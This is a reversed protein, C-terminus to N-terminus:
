LLQVGFEKSFETTAGQRKIRFVVAGTPTAAAAPTVAFQVLKPVTNPIPTATNVLQLAWGILTAGPKPQITLDYNGPVGLSTINFMVIMQKGVKLKIVGGELRGNAQNTDVGGTAVDIVVAGTQQVQINPDAQPVVAGVTLSRSESNTVGGSTATVVLTFSQSAFTAPIQPIRVVINRTENKGLEIRKNSIVSGSEDLFEISAALGAPITTTANIINASLDFTAPMNIGTQLQFNFLAQQNVQLPNPNPNPAVDARWNVFVDGTLNIVIPMVFVTRVDSAIGNSVRLVMTAGAQPLGPIPPVMLLIRTDSSGPLFQDRPVVIKSQGEFAVSTQGLAVGFGQGTIQLPAAVRIPETATGAPLLAAVKIGNTQGTELLDNIADVVLNWMEATIVDGPEVRNLLQAM